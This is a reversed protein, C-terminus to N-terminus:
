FRLLWGCPLQRKDISRHWVRQVFSIYLLRTPGPYKVVVNSFFFVLFM